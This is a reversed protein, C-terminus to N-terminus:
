SLGNFLLGRGLGWGGRRQGHDREAGDAEPQALMDELQSALQQLHWRRKRGHGKEVVKGPLLDVDRQNRRGRFGAGGSRGTEVGVLM